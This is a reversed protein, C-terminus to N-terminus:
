VKTLVTNRCIPCNENQAIWASLCAKHFIHNCFTKDIMTKPEAKNTASDIELNQVTENEHIVTESIVESNPMSEPQEQDGNENQVSSSKDVTSARNSFPELCIGCVEDEAMNRDRLLDELLMSRPILKMLEREYETTIFFRPHCLSQFALVSGIILLCIGLPILEAPNTPGMHITNPFYFIYYILLTKPLYLGCIYMWKFEKNYTFFNDFIAFFFMALAYFPLNNPEAFLGYLHVGGAIFGYLGLLLKKSLRMHEFEGEMHFNPNTAILTFLVIFLQGIVAYIFCPLYVLSIIMIDIDIFWCNILSLRPITRIFPCGIFQTYGIAAVVGAIQLIVIAIYFITFQLSKSDYNVKQVNAIKLCYKDGTSSVLTFGGSLNEFDLKGDPIKWTYNLDMKELVMLDSWGMSGFKYYSTIPKGVLTQNLDESFYSHIVDGQNIVRRDRYISTLVKAFTGIFVVNPDNRTTYSLMVKAPKPPDTQHNALCSTADVKYHYDTFDSKERLSSRCSSVDSCVLLCLLVILKRTRSSKFGIFSGGSNIKKM